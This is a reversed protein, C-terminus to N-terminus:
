SKYKEKWPLAMGITDKNWKEKKEIKPNPNKWSASTLAKIVIYERLKQNNKSIKNRLACNLLENYFEGALENLNKETLKEKGKLSVIIQNKGKEELFVYMKDLFLYTTGYIAELPYIAPNIFATIKNEKQNIKISKM